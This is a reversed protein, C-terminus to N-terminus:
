SSSILEIPKMRLRNVQTLFSVLASICTSLILVILGIDPRLKLELDFFFFVILSTLVFSILVGFLSAFFNLIFSEMLSLKILSSHSVGLMKYLASENKRLEAQNIGMSFIVFIGCILTTLSQWKLATMMQNFINLIRDVVKTIDVTSINPFNQTTKNLLSMKQDESLGNITILHTKPADELVGPSFLVFFNPNMSTWKVERINVIVGSVEIGLIEFTLKDGLSFGMRSAYRKEISIQAMESTFPPQFEKGELITEDSNISERFSINIGRNRFRQNQEEERTLAKKTKVSYDKDNLKLLRARVMPSSRLLNVNDEILQRKLDEVQEDQIDFMFFQPRGERGSFSLEHTIMSQMQPVLNIMMTSIALAIPGALLSSSQRSIAKAFLYRALSTNSKSFKSFYNAAFKFIGWLLVTSLLMSVFFFGGIKFSKASFFSLFMFLLIAPLYDIWKSHSKTKLVIEEFLNPLKEVLSTKVVPWVIAISFLPGLLFYFLVIELSLKTSIQANLYDSLYQKLTPIFTASVAFSILSGALSLLLVVFLMMVRLQSNDMGLLRYLYLSKRCREILHSFLYFLGSGSMFLAVLSILSLFDTMYRVARAMQESTESPTSVRISQDQLAEEIRNIDNQDFVRNTQFYVSNTITSGKQILGSEKLDLQNVFLRPALNGWSLGQTPDFEVVDEVRYSKGGLSIFAGVETDLLNLLEPYLWISGPTPRDLQNHRLKIKGYYPYQSGLSKVWVLRSFKGKAMSFFSPLEESGVIEDPYLKKILEVKENPIPIRSSLALDAGLLEKSREDLGQQFSIRLDHVFGIVSLGIAMGIIFMLSERFYFRIFKLSQTIIM